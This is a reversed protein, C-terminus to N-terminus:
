HRLAKIINNNNCNNRNVLQSYKVIVRRPTVMQMDGMIFRKEVKGGGGVGGLFAANDEIEGPVM